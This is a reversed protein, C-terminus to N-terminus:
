SLSGRFCLEKHLYQLAQRVRGREEPVPTGIHHAPVNAAGHLSAHLAELLGYHGGAWDVLGIALLLHRLCEHLTHPHPPSASPADRQLSHSLSHNQHLFVVDVVVVFTEGLCVQFLICGQCVGFCLM